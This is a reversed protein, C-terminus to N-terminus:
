FHLYIIYKCRNLALQFLVVFALKKFTMGGGSMRMKTVVIGYQTCSTSNLLVNGQFPL